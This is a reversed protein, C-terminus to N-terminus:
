DTVLLKLGGRQRSEVQRERYPWSGMVDNGCVCANLPRPSGASAGWMPKLVQIACFRM